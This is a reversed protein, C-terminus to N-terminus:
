EEGPAEADEGLLQAQEDADAFLEALSVRFGPLLKGGDLFGDAPVPEADELSTYITASRTERDIFWVVEVGATFYDRLKRDMERPTNSASLVEMALNPALAPITGRRPRAAAIRERSVFCVDPMRIQEGLIRLAADAGMGIGLPHLKLYAQLLGGLIQAVTSEYWGMAKEVLIGDILECLVDHHEDLELVDQETAMGPPPYLRIREPPVGLYDQLEKISWDKPLVTAPLVVTAGAAPTM